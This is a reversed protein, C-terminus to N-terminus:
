MHVGSFWTKVKIRLAGKSIVIVIREGKINGPVESLVAPVAIPCTSNTGIVDFLEGGAVHFASEHTV